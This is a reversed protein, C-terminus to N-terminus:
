DIQEYGDFHANNYISTISWGTKRNLYHHLVVKDEKFNVEEAKGYLEKCLEQLTANPMEKIIKFDGSTKRAKKQLNMTYNLKGNLEYIGPIAPVDNVNDM